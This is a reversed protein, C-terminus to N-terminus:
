RRENSAEQNTSIIQRKRHRCIASVRCYHLTGGGCFAREMVTANRGERLIKLNDGYYLTNMPCPSLRAPIGALASDSVSFAFVSAPLLSRPGLGVRCAGQPGLRTIEDLLYQAVDDLCDSRLTQHRWGFQRRHCQRRNHRRGLGALCQWSASYCQDCRERCGAFRYGLILQDIYMPDLGKQVKSGSPGGSTGCLEIELVGDGNCDLALGPILVDNIYPANYYTETIDGRSNVASPVSLIGPHMSRTLSARRLRAKGM